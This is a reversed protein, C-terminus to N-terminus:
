AHAAEAGRTQPQISVSMKSKGRRRFVVIGDKLKATAGGQLTVGWRSPDLTAGDFEDVLLCARPACRNLAADSSTDIPADTAPPEPADPPPPADPDFPATVGGCGAGVLLSAVLGGILRCRTSSHRLALPHANRM